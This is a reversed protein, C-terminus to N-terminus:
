GLSCAQRLFAYLADRAADDVTIEAYQPEPADGVRVFVPFVYPKKSEGIDHGNCTAARVTLVVGAKAAGPALAAPLAGAPSGAIAYLVSGQVETVTVEAETDRRTVLLEAPLLADEGSGTAAGTVRLDLSVQRALLRAACEDRHIREMLQEPSELPVRVTVVAGGAVSLTAEAEYPGGDGDTDCDVEGYPVPLSWREAPRFAIEDTGTPALPAFGPALLRLTHLVLPEPGATMLIQFRGGAAADPRTQSAVAVLGQPPTATAAPSAVVPAASGGDDGGSVRVGVTVACVAAVLATALGAVRRNM